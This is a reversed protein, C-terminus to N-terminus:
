CFKGDTYDKRAWCLAHPGALHAMRGELSKNSSDVNELGALEIVLAVNEELTQIGYHGILATAIGPQSLAYSMLERASAEKGVIDRMVKMALTGIKRQRASPLAVKAFDGYQTPNMALICVDPDLKEIFERSKEASNMSSFGINRAVGQEKLSRMKNYVGQEISSIDENSDISHVMLVDVYDTKLDKLSKEFEKMAGDVDRSDFKTSIYVDKRYKPLILGLRQESSMSANFLYSSSTDFYNVGLEIARELLPEWEGDPNKLFQSGCGFSLMSVELGTAGLTRKPMLATITKQQSQKKVCGPVMSVAAATSATQIFQRRSIHHNNENFM